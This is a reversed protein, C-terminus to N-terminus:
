FRMRTTRLILTNKRGKKRPHRVGLTIVPGLSHHVGSEDRLFSKISTAKIVEYSLFQGPSNGVYKIHCITQNKTPSEFTRDHKM